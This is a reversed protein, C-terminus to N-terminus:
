SIVGEEFLAMAAIVLSEGIAVLVHHIFEGWHCFGKDISDLCQYQGSECQRPFVKCAAKYYLISYNPQQDTSERPINISIRLFSSMIAWGYM